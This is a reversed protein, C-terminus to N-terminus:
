NLIRIQKLLYEMSKANSKDDHGVGKLLKFKAKIKNKILKNFYERSKSWHISKDVDGHTIYIDIDKLYTVNDTPNYEPKKGHLIDPWESKDFGRYINLWYNNILNTINSTNEEKYRTKGQTKWDLVARFLGLSKIKTNKYYKFYFPAISGGWSSGVLIINSFKPKIPKNSDTLTGILHGTLFQESQEITKLTNKFNFQGDSRCYGIYDPVFLSVNSKLCPKWLPSKGTDGFSPGGKLHIIVTGSNNKPPNYLTGFLEGAKTQVISNNKM